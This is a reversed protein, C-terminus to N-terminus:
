FASLRESRRRAIPLTVPKPARKPASKRAQDTTSAAEYTRLLTPVYALLIARSFWTM